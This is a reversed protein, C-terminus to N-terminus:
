AVAIPPATAFCTLRGAGARALGPALDLRREEDQRVSRADREAVGDGSQPSRRPRHRSKAAGHSPGEDRSLAIEPETDSAELFPLPNQRPAGITTPTRRAADHTGANVALQGALGACALSIAVLVGALHRGASRVTVVCPHTRL